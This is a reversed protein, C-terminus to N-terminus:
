ASHTGAAELVFWVTTGGADRDNGWRSSLAELLQLGRGHVRLLDPDGTAQPRGPRRPGARDKVSVLVAGDVFSVRVTSPTAAHLVANTVVESLCLEAIGVCGDDVGWDTLTRRLFRRAGGM